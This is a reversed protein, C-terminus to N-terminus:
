RGAQFGEASTANRRKIGSPCCVIRREPGSKGRRWGTCVAQLQKLEAHLTALLEGEAALETDLSNLDRNLTVSGGRVDFLEQQLIQLLAELEIKSQEITVPEYIKTVVLLLIVAGFGCCIVDLFSLSFVDTNRNKRTSAM